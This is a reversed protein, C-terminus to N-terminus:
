PQDFGTCTTKLPTCSKPAPIKLGRRGPPSASYSSSRASVRLLRTLEQDIIPSLVLFNVQVYAVMNLFVNSVTNKLGFTVIFPIAFATYLVASEVIITAINAYLSAHQAGLAALVRHRHVLLRGAILFTVFINTVASIVYYSLVLNETVFPSSDSTGTSQGM